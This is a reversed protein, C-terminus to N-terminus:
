YKYWTLAHEITAELRGCATKLVTDSTDSQLTWEDTVWPHTLFYIITFCFIIFTGLTQYVIYNNM